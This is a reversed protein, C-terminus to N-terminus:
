PQERQREYREVTLKPGYKRRWMRKTVSRLQELVSEAEPLKRSNVVLVTRKGEIFPQLDEQMAHVDDLIPVSPLPNTKRKYYYSLPITEHRGISLVVTDDNTSRSLDVAADAWRPNRTTSYYAGWLNYAGFVVIVIGALASIFVRKISALGVAVLVSFPMAAWLVFRIYFMPQSISILALLIPGTVSLLWLCLLLTVRRRLAVSGVISFALIALSFAISETGLLFLDRLRSAVDVLTPATAPWGKEAIESSQHLLTPFWPAFFLGVTVTVLIFRVGLKRRIEGNKWHVVLGVLGCTLALLTATNHLYLCVLVGTGLAVFALEPRLRGSLKDSTTERSRSFARAADNPNEVIWILGWFALAAMLGLPAYMRAEQDYHVQYRSLVLLMVGLLGVSRGQVLRGIRYVVLLKLLGCVASPLRLWFEDDGLMMVYHIVLFYTPIHFKRVASEILQGVPLSSRHFTIAEDLWVCEQGLHYFRTVVALLSLAVVALSLAYVRKAQAHAEKTSNM